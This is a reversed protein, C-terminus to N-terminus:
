PTTPVTLAPKTPTQARLGYAFQAELARRVRSDNQPLDQSLYQTVNNGKRDSIGSTCCAIAAPTFASTVRDITAIAVRGMGGQAAWRYVTRPRSSQRLPQHRGLLSRCGEAHAPALHPRRGLCLQLVKRRLGGVLDSRNVEEDNR